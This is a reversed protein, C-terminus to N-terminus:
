FTAEVLQTEKAKHEPSSMHKFLHDPGPFFISCTRCQFNSKQNNNLVKAAPTANGNVEPATTKPPPPPPPTDQQNQPMAGIKQMKEVRTKHPKGTRHMELQQLSNLNVKCFQCFFAGQSVNGEEALNLTEITKLKKLHKSSKFHQEAQEVSNFVIACVACPVEVLKRKMPLKGRMNDFVAQTVPDLKTNLPTDSPLVALPNQPQPVHTIDPQFDNSTVKAAMEADQLPSALANGGEARAKVKKLHTKGTYHQEAQQSSNLVICCVDCKIYEVNASKKKGM